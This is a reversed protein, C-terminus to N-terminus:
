SGGSTGPSTSPPSAEVGFCSDGQRTRTSGQRRRTFRRVRVPRGQRTRRRQRRTEEAHAHSLPLVQDGRLAPRLLPIAPGADFRAEQGTLVFVGSGVFALDVSSLCLPLPNESSRLSCRGPRSATPPAPPWATACGCCPPRSHAATGAGIQAGRLLDDPSISAAPPPPPASSCRPAPLCWIAAASPTAAFPTEATIGPHNESILGM